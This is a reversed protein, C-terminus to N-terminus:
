LASSKPSSQPRSKPTVQPAAKGPTEAPAVPPRVTVKGAAPGVPKAFYVLQRQVAIPTTEQATVPTTILTTSQPLAGARNWLPLKCIHPNTRFTLMLSAMGFDCVPLELVGGEANAFGCIWRLYDDRWSSKWEVQQSEKM